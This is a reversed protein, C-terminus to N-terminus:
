PARPSVARPALHQGIGNACRVRRTSLTEELIRQNRPLAQRPEERHWLHYGIGAFKLQLRELGAHQLRAVFESDERGWGVFDEDFGNVRLVDERWCALNASRVRFVDASRHSALASLASSHLANLRNRLGPAFPGFAVRGAALAAATAAESLMVRSGQVFRGPRAARVHDRLFQPHLVIDGDVMVLYDGSARAFARNRSAAARFGLDEQWSHVVPFPATSAFAAVLEGTDPRSGDDAVVLEDPRLAQRAASALVLALADKRNYTTVVLTTRVPPRAEAWEV